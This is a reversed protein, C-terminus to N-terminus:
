EADTAGVTVNRGNRDIDGALTRERTTQNRYSDAFADVVGDQSIEGNAHRDLLSNNMSSTKPPRQTDNVELVRYGEPAEGDIKGVLHANYAKWYANLATTLQGTRRDFNESSDALDIVVWLEGDDFRSGRLEVAVDLDEGVDTLHLLYERIFPQFASRDVTPSSTARPTETATGTTASRTVPAPTPTPTITPNTTPTATVTGAPSSTPTGIDESQAPSPGAVAYIAVVSAGLVLLGAVALYVATSQGRSVSDIM